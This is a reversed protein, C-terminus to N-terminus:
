KFHFPTGYFSVSIKSLYGDYYLYLVVPDPTYAEDEVDVETTSNSKSTISPTLPCRNSGRLRVVPQSQRTTKTLMELQVRTGDWGCGEGDRQGDVFALKAVSNFTSTSVPDTTLLDPHPVSFPPYVCFSITQHSHINIFVLAIQSELGKRYIRCLELGVFRDPKGGNSPKSEHLRNSRPARSPPRLLTMGPASGSPRRRSAADDFQTTVCGSISTLRRDITTSTWIQVKRENERGKWKSETRRREAEGYM